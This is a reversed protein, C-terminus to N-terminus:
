LWYNIIFNKKSSTFNNRKNSWIKLKYSKTSIDIIEDLDYVITENIPNIFESKHWYWNKLINNITNVEYAIEMKEEWLPFWVVHRYDKMLNNENLTQKILIM